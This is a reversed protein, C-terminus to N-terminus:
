QDSDVGGKRRNRIPCLQLSMSYLDDKELHEINQWFQSIFKQFQVHFDPMSAKPIAVIMSQALRDDMPDLILSQIHMTLIQRHFRRIAISPTDSFTSFIEPNAIWKGDSDASLLKLQTLRQIAVQTEDLSIGLRNSIWKLDSQFDKVQTLELIAAHYWDSIVRFQDEKIQVHSNAKRADNVRATALERVKKNRASESLILDRWFQRDRPNLKLKEAITDATKESLGHKGSLIESLRSPSLELDRAFARLSYTENRQKRKSFEAGLFESISQHDYTTNM